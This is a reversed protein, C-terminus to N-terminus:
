NVKLIWVKSLGSLNKIRNRQRKMVDMNDSQFLVVYYYGRESVYGVRTDHFGRQFLKDSFAEALDFSNFAGSILHNGQPLELM